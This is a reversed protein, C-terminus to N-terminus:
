EARRCDEPRHLRWGKAAYIWDSDSLPHRKSKVRGGAYIGVLYSMGNELAKGTIRPRRIGAGNHHMPRLTM